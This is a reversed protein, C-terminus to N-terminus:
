IMLAMRVRHSCRHSKRRIARFANQYFPRDCFPWSRCATPGVRWVLHRRGGGPFVGTGPSLPCTCPSHTNYWSTDSFPVSTTCLAANMASVGQNYVTQLYGHFQAISLNNISRSSLALVKTIM